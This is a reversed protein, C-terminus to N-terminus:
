GEKTRMQLIDAAYKLQILANILRVRATGTTASIDTTDCVRNITSIWSPITLALSSIEADPDYEPMDKITQTRVPEPVEKPPEPLLRKRWTASSQVQTEEAIIRCEDQLKTPSLKALANIRDLSARYKGALYSDIFDPVLNVLHDIAQAYGEYKWVTTVAIGYQRGIRERTGTQSNDYKSRSIVAASRRSTRRRRTSHLHAGLSIETASRKGILYRWMADPLGKRELQNECIWAIVEEKCTYPISVTDYPLQFLKCYEYYSYDVLITHYWVRIKRQRVTSSIEDELAKQEAITLPPVLRKFEPNIKLNYDTQQM